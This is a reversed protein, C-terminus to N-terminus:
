ASTTVESPEIAELEVTELYDQLFTVCDTPMIGVKKMEQLFSQIIQNPIQQQLAKILLTDETVFRGATNETYLIGMDELKTLSKQITNPNVGFEVALDRVSPIKTGPLYTGLAIAIKVKDMIQAYIPLNDSFNNKM